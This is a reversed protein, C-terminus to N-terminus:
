TRKYDVVASECWKIIPMDLHKEDMITTAQIEEDDVDQDFSLQRVDIPEGILLHEWNKNNSLDYDLRSLDDVPEEQM